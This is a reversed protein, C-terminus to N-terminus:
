RRDRIITASLPEGQIKIPHFESDPDQAPPEVRPVTAPGKSAKPTKDRADSM